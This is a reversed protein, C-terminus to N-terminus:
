RLPAGWVTEKRLQAKLVKGGPNRPLPSDRLAIFQPVKFDAIQERCHAVVAAADFEVGPRPVVVSVTVPKM